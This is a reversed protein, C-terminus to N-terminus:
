HGRGGEEKCRRAVIQLTFLSAPLARRNKLQERQGRGTGEAAPRAELGGTQLFRAQCLPGRWTKRPSEQVEKETPHTKQWM